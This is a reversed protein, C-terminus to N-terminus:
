LNYLGSAYMVGGNGDDHTTLELIKEGGEASDGSIKSFSTGFHDSFSALIHSGTQVIFIATRNASDAAVFRVEIHHGHHFENDSGCWPVWMNINDFTSHADVDRSDSPTERNHVRCQKNTRNVIRRINTVPV